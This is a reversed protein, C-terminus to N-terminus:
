AEELLDEAEELLKLLKPELGEKTAGAKLLARTVGAFTWAEPDHEACRMHVPLRLRRNYHRKAVKELATTGDECRWNVDVDPFHQSIMEVLAGSEACEACEHYADEPMTVIARLVIARPIQACDRRWESLLRNANRMNIEATDAPENREIVLRLWRPLPCDYVHCMENPELFEKWILIKVQEILFHPICRPGLCDDVSCLSGVTLEVKDGSFGWLVTVLEHSKKRAAKREIRDTKEQRLEEVAKELVTIRALAEQLQEETSGANRPSPAATSM